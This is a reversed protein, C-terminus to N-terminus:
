PTDSRCTSALGQCKTRLSPPPVRHQSLTGKFREEKAIIGLPKKNLLESPAVETLYAGPGPPAIKSSLQPKKDVIASINYHMASIIGTIKQSNARELSLSYSGPGVKEPLRDNILQPRAIKSLFVPSLKDVKKRVPYTTEDFKILEQQGV